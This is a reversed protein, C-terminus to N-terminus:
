ANGSLGAALQRNINILSRLREPQPNGMVDLTRNIVFIGINAVNQRIEAPLPNDKDTVSTLFITWLKRNFLLAHDLANRERDWHDHVNQLRSAARLLLQAELDRPSATRQAVTGYAKAANQM